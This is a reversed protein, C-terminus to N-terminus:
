HLDGCIMESIFRRNGCMAIREESEVACARKGEYDKFFKLPVWVMFEVLIAFSKLTHTSLHQQAWFM